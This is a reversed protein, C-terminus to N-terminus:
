WPIEGGEYFDWNRVKWGDATKTVWVLWRSQSTSILYLFDGTRKFEEIEFALDPLPQFRESYFQVYGERGSEPPASGKAHVSPLSIDWAKGFDQNLFFAHYYEVAVKSAEPHLKPPTAAPKGGVGCGALVALALLVALFAAARRM